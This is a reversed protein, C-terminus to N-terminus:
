GMQRHAQRVGFESAAYAMPCVGWIDLALFM